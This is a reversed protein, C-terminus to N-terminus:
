LVRLFSKGNTRLNPATFFLSAASSASNV